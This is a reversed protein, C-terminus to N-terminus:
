HLPWLQGGRNEEWQWNKEFTLEEKKVLIQFPDRMFKKIVQLLDIPMSASLLVAQISANGKQYIEHIQDKMGQSLMNIQKMWFCADQTMDSSQFCQDWSGGQSHSGPIGPLFNRQSLGKSPVKVM